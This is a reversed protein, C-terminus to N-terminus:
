LIGKNEKEVLKPERAKEGPLLHPCQLTRKGMRYKSIDVNEQKESQGIHVMLLMNFQNLRIFIEKQPIM